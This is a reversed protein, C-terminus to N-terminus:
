LPFTPVDPDQLEAPCPVGVASPGVELHHRLGSSLPRPSLVWVTEPAADIWISYGLVGM